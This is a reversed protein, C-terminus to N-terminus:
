REIWVGNMVVGVIARTNQIDELPSAELLVLNARKGVEITGFDDSSELYRAANVTAARLTEFPTLGADVFLELEDHIVEAKDDTGTLLGVQM